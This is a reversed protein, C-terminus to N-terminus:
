LVWGRKEDDMAERALERNIVIDEAIGLAFDAEGRTYGSGVYRWAAETVTDASRTPKTDGKRYDAREERLAGYTTSYRRSKTLIHGRYGLAHAWSRLRLHELEALGGLRWCTGMLARVHRNVVAARIDELSTVRYDLGAGTDAAGKTVYKAVYGAVASDSPNDNEAVPRIPHADFQGGWGVRETGYAGSDPVTVFSSAAAQEVADLLVDETAWAPASSAPGDTGDMRVIGHFHIAGRRQFEAVKAFSVVLHEGLKSRPVGGASALYRRVATTFRDWLRGAHAHWLVHGVYDYCDPCLPLGVPPDDETHVLGCGQRRGHECRPDDRRPRCRDGERVRHVPGFSPATLTVFLRPRDRVADPVGKGGSLGARVLQFTDGAHLYACPECVSARRNRCRVALREGPEGDTSYSSLVEGTVADHTVTSGSLYIPNACGGIAKIQEKWRSFLPDKLLRILDRDAESLAQLRLERALVDSRGAPASSAASPRIAPTSNNCSAASM